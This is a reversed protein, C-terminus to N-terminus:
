VVTLWSTDIFHVFRLMERESMPMNINQPLKGTTLTSFDSNKKHNITWKVYVNFKDFM